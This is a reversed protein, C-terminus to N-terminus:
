CRAAEGERGVPTEPRHGPGGETDGTLVLCRMLSAWWRWVWRKGGLCSGGLVCSLIRGERELLFFDARPRWFQGELNAPGWGALFVHLEGEWPEASLCPWCYIAVSTGLARGHALHGPRHGSEGVPDRHAAPGRGRQVGHQQHQVRADQLAPLPAWGRGCPSLSSLLPAPVM